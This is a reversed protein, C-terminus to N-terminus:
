KECLPGKTKVRQYESKSLHLTARVQKQLALLRKNKEEKCESVASFVDGTYPDVAYNAVVVSEKPLGEWVV